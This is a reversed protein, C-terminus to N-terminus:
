KSQNRRGRKDGSDKVSWPSKKPLAMIDSLWFKRRESDVYVPVLLGARVFDSISTKSVGLIEAAEGAKVLRDTPAPIIMKGELNKLAEILPIIEKAAIQIREAYEAAERLEDLNINM